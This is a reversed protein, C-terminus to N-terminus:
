EQTEGGTGKADESRGATPDREAAADFEAYKQLEDSINFVAGINGQPVGNASKYEALLGLFDCVAAEVSGEHKTATLERLDNREKPTM